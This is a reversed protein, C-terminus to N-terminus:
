FFDFEFIKKLLFFKLNNQISVKNEIITLM